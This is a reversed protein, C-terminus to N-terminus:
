VKQAYGDLPRPKIGPDGMFLAGVMVVVAMFNGSKCRRVQDGGIAIEFIDGSCDNATGEALFLGGRLVLPKKKGSRVQMLDLDASYKFHSLWCITIRVYQVFTIAPLSPVM